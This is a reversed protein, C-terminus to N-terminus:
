STLAKRAVCGWHPTNCRLPSPSPDGYGQSSEMAHGFTHGLNLTARVGGEREDASVVEAKNVCSREIAYTMAQACEATKLPRARGGLVYNSSLPFLVLAWEHLYQDPICASAHWQETSVAPCFM